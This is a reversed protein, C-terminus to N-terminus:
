FDGLDDDLTSPSSLHCQSFLLANATNAHIEETRKSTSQASPHHCIVPVSSWETWETLGGGQKSSKDLDGPVGAQRSREAKSKEACGSILYLRLTHISM